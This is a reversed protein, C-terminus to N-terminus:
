GLAGEDVQLGRVARQFTRMAELFAVQGAPLDAEEAARRMREVDMAMVVQRTYTVLVPLAQHLYAADSDAM